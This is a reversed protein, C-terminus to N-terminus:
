SAAESPAAPSRSRVRAIAADVLGPFVFRHYLYATVAALALLAAVAGVRAWLGDLLTVDFALAKLLAAGTLAAAILRVRDNRGFAWFLLAGVGGAFVLGSYALHELFGIPATPMATPHFADRITLAAWMVALMLAASLAIRHLLGPEVRLRVIGYGAFLLAPAFYAALLANAGVMGDVAPPALGWWPNLWVVLTIWAHLLGGLLACRETRRQLLGPETEGRPAAIFALAALGSTIAGAEWLSRYPATLDGDNLLHRIEAWGASLVLALLALRTVVTARGNEGSPGYALLRHGVVLALIAIAFALTMPNLVPTRDVAAFWLAPPSLLAITAVAAAIAAIRLAPLPMRGDMWALIPVLLAVVASLLVPDFAFAGAMVAGLVAAAAFVNVAPSPPEGEPRGAALRYLAFGNMAALAVGAGAWAEPPPIVDGLRLYALLLALTPVAGAMIAGALASRNRGIMLWGGVSAAFGLAGAVTAFRQIAVADVFTPWSALAALSAAAIAIAVLAFGQRLAAAISTAFVLTVLALAANAAAGRGVIFLALLAATAALATAVGIWAHTPVARWGGERTFLPANLGRSAYAAGLLGIAGLHVGALVAGTPLFLALMWYVGWGIGSAAGIAALARWGRREALAFATAAFAFLFPFLASAPAADVGVALPAGMGGVLGLWALPAGFRLAAASAALAVIGMLAVCLTQDIMGLRAYGAWSMGFLCVFGAGALLAPAYPSMTAALDADYVRRREVWEAGAILGLGLIFGFTLLSAQNLFDNLYAYRLFAVIAAALLAGLLWVAWTGSLAARLGPMFPTRPNNENSIEGLAPDRNSTERHPPDRRSLDRLEGHAVNPTSAEPTAKRELPRTFAPAAPAPADVADAPPEAARVPRLHTLVTPFKLPASPPRPPPRPPEPRRAPAGATARVPQASSVVITEQMSESGVVANELSRIRDHAEMLADRYRTMRFFAVAGLVACATVALVVLALAILEFTM